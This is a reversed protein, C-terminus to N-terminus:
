IIGRSKLDDIEGDSLGALARYIEQNDQGLRRGLHEVRGPTLSLRPFVAPV